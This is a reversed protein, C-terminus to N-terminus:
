EQWNAIPKEVEDWGEERIVANDPNFYRSLSGAISRSLCQPSLALRQEM